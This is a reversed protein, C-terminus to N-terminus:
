PGSSISAECSLKGEICVRRRPIRENGSSVRLYCVSTLLHSSFITSLDKNDRNTEHQRNSYLASSNLGAFVFM